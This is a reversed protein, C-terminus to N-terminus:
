VSQRLLVGLEVRACVLGPCPVFSLVARRTVAGVKSRVDLDQLKQQRSLDACWAMGEFVALDMESDATTYNGKNQGPKEEDVPGTPTLLAWGKGVVGTIPQLNELQTIKNDAQGQGEGGPVRTLPWVSYGRDEVAAVLVYDGDKNIVLIGGAQYLM